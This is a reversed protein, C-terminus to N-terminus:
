PDNQLLDYTSMPNGSKRRKSIGDLRAIGFLANRGHVGRQRSCLDAWLFTIEFLTARPAARNM